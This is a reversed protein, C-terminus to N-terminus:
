YRIVHIITKIVVTSEPVYWTPDLIAVLTEMLVFHYSLLILSWCRRSGQEALDGLM